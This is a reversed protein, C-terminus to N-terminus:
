FLVSSTTSKRSSILQIYHKLMMFEVTVLNVTICTSLFFYPVNFPRFVKMTQWSGQFPIAEHFDSFSTNHLCKIKFRPSGWQLELNPYVKGGTIVIGNLFPDSDMWWFYCSAMARGKRLRLFLKHCSICFFAILHNLPPNPGQCQTNLFIGRNKWALQKERCKGPRGHIVPSVCM